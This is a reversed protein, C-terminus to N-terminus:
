WLPRRSLIVLNWNVGVNQTFKIKGDLSRFNLYFRVNLQM